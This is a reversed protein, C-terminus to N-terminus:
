DESALLIHIPNSVAIYDREGDVRGLVSFVVQVEGAMKERVLEWHRPVITYGRSVAASPPMASFHRGTGCWTNAVDIRTSDNTQLDTVKFMGIIHPGSERMEDRLGILKGRIARWETKERDGVTPDDIYRQMENIREDMETIKEWSFGRIDVERPVAGRNEIHVTVVLEEGPKLTTADCSIYCGIDRASEEETLVGSSESPGEARPPPALSSTAQQCGCLATATM